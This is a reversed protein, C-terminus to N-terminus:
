KKFRCGVVYQNQPRHCDFGLYRQTDGYKTAMHGYEHTTPFTQFQKSTWSRCRSAYRKPMTQYRATEVCTSISTLSWLDSSNCPKADVCAALCLLNSPIYHWQLYYGSSMEQLLGNWCGQFPSTQQLSPSNSCQTMETCPSWKTPLQGSKKGHGSQWPIAQGDRLWSFASSKWEFRDVQIQANSM